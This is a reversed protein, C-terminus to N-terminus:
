KPRFTNKIYALVDAIEGESLGGEWKPMLGKGKRIIQLLEEDKRGQWFGAKTYDAPKTPLVRGTPGDGRGGEGHCISCRDGYIAKGRELDAAGVPGALLGAAMWAAIRTRNM